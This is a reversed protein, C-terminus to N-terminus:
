GAPSGLREGARASSADPALALVTERTMISVPSEAM